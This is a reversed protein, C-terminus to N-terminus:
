RTIESKYLNHITSKVTLICFLVQLLYIIRFYYLFYYLFSTDKM